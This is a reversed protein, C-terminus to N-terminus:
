FKGESCETKLGEFDGGIKWFPTKIHSKVAMERQFILNLTATMVRGINMINQPNGFKLTACTTLNLGFAWDAISRARGALVLPNMEDSSRLNQFANVITKETLDPLIARKWPKNELGSIELVYQFILEGERDPNCANIILDANKLYNQVYKLLKKTNDNPTLKYKEPLFPYNSFSWFKLKEDYEEPKALTALHGSGHVIVASEGNFDFEWHASFKDNPNPIRDGAGLANAITKALSYKECYICIQM